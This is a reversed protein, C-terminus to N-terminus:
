SSRVEPPPRMSKPYNVCTNECEIRLAFYNGLAERQIMLNPNSMCLPHQLIWRKIEDGGNPDHGFFRAWLCMGMVRM